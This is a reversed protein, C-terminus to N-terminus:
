GVDGLGRSFSRDYPIRCTNEVSTDHNQTCTTGALDLRGERSNDAFPQTCEHYATFVEKQGLTIQQDRVAFENEGATEHGVSRV